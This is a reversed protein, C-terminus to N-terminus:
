HAGSEVFATNTLLSSSLSYKGCRGRGLQPPFESMLWFRSRLSRLCTISAPPLSAYSCASRTWSPLCTHLLPASDATCSRPLLLLFLLLMEIPNSGFPRHRTECDSTTWSIQKRPICNFMQSVELTYGFYKKEDKTWLVGTDGKHSM